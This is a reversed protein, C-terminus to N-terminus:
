ECRKVQLRDQRSDISKIKKTLFQRKHRQAKTKSVARTMTEGSPKKSSREQGSTSTSRRVPTRLSSSKRKPGRDTKVDNTSRVRDGTEYGSALTLPHSLNCHLQLAPQYYLPDHFDSLALRRHDGLSLSQSSSSSPKQQEIYSLPLNVAHDERTRQEHEVLSPNETTLNMSLLSSSTDSTM